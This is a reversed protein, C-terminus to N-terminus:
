RLGAGVIREAALRGSIMVMPVGVGPQTGSGVFVVNDFALNSPRFPGTQFFSHAAAFPTGREMGRRAWDAPTTLSEVEISDGFGAYGLRELRAVIEERYRPGITDWDIAADLNPAPVLVYRV